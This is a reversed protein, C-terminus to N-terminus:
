KAEASGTENRRWVMLAEYLPSADRIELEANWRMAAHRLRDSEGRLRNAQQKQQERLIAKPM